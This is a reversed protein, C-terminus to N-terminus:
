YFQRTYNGGILKSRFWGGLLVEQVHTSAEMTNAKKLAAGTIFWLMLNSSPGIYSILLFLFINPLPQTFNLNSLCGPFQCGVQYLSVHTHAVSM